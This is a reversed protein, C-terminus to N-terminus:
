QFQAGLALSAQPYDKVSTATRPQAERRRLFYVLPFLLALALLSFPIGGYRHLRGHLFGPDVHIGLWAITVIRAANKFIAIPVTAMCLILRRWHARLFFKGAVAGTIFLTLCSQIGSCEEAIEIDIGPVLIGFGHRFVPVGTLKLLFATVEVSGVQLVRIVRSLVAAPLPVIVLLLLLSFSAARFSRAGYCALFGAYWILILLFVRASLHANLRLPAGSTLLTCVLLVGISLALRGPVRGPLNTFIRSRELYIIFGALFPILLGHSYGEGAIAWWGFEHITPWFAAVSLVIFTLFCGHHWAINVPIPATQKM